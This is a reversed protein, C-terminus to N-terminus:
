LSGPLELRKLEEADTMQFNSQLGIHDIKLSHFGRVESLRLVRVMFRATQM